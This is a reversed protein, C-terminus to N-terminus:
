VFAHLPIPVLTHRQSESALEPGLGLVVALFGGDEAAEKELTVGTHCFAVPPLFNLFRQCTNLFVHYGNVCHFLGPKNTHQFCEIGLIFWRAM